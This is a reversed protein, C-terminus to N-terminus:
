SFDLASCFFSTEKKHRSPTVERNKDCLEKEAASRFRRRVDGLSSYSPSFAFLFCEKKLSFHLHRSPKLFLTWINCTRLTLLHLFAASITLNREIKKDDECSLRSVSSAIQYSIIPSLYCTFTFRNSLVFRNRHKETALLM